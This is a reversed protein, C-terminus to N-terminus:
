PSSSRDNVLRINVKQRKKWTLTFIIIDIACFTEISSGKMRVCALLHDKRSLFDKTKKRLKRKRKKVKTKQNRLSEKQGGRFKANFQGKHLFGLVGSSTRRKSRIRGDTRGMQGDMWGDTQGSDTGRRPPRIKRAGRGGFGGSSTQIHQIVTNHLM